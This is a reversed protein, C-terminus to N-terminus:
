RAHRINCASLLAPATDRAEALNPGTETKEGKEHKQNINWVFDAPPLMTGTETVRAQSIDQKTSLAGSFCFGQPGPLSLCRKARVRAALGQPAWLQPGQHSSDSEHGQRCQTRRPRAQLRGNCIHHRMGLAAAYVYVYAYMYTLHQAHVTFLRVLSCSSSSCVSLPYWFCAM